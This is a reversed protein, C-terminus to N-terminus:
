LANALEEAAKEPAVSNVFIGSGWELGAVTAIRPLIEIHWHYYDYRNSDFPSTHIILNYSVGPLHRELRELSRRVFRGLRHMSAHQHFHDEHVRPLICMEYPFRSAYPCLVVYDDTAEILRNDSDRQVQCFVCESQSLFSDRTVSLELEAEPPVVPLAVLQSHAHELSIGARVGSNKFLLAYAIRPDESLQQMRTRYADFVVSVEDDTLETMRSVHRDSEIVVEHIGFTSVRAQDSQWAFSNASNFEGGSCFAPYLNPVIRVQWQGTVPNCIELSTPPTAQENGPCFPCVQDSRRVEPFSFEIPRSARGGAIVVWRGTVPDRRYEPAASSNHFRNM